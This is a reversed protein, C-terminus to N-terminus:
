QTKLYEDDPDVYFNFHFWTDATWTNSSIDAVGEFASGGLNSMSCHRNGGETRYLIRVADTDTANETYWTIYPMTAWPNTDYTSRVKTCLIKSGPCSINYGTIFQFYSHTSSDSIHSMVGDAVTVHTSGTEDYIEWRSANYDAGYFGEFWIFTTNGNSTTSAGSNNYYMWIKSDNYSNKIWFTAQADDTYNERWYPIENGTSNSIFRIDDFDKQTHGDCTVNGGSINGVIIKMQYGSSANSISLKKRYHWDADWWGNSWTLNDTSYRYWLAVNDLSSDGTATIALPSSTQNYPSIANILTSLARTSFYYTENTWGNGDTVNVSWCYKTLYADVWSTNTFVYTGNGKNTDSNFTIWSGS